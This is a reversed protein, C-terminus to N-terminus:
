KKAGVQFDEKLSKWGLILVLALLIMAIRVAVYNKIFEGHNAKNVWKLAPNSLENAFDRVRWEKVGSAEAIGGWFKSVASPKVRKWTEEIPKDLILARGFDGSFQSIVKIIDNPGMKYVGAKGPGGEDEESFSSSKRTAWNRIGITPDLSEAGGDRFFYFARQLFRQVVEQPPEGGGSQGEVASYLPDLKKYLGNWDKKEAIDKLDQRFSNWLKSIGDATDHCYTAARKVTDHGSSSLNVFRLALDGSTPSFGFEGRQYFDRFWELRTLDRRRREPLLRLEEELEAKKKPDSETRIKNPLDIEWNAEPPKEKLYITLQRYIAVARGIREQDVEGNHNLAENLIERIVTENLIYGRGVGDRDKNVESKIAGLDGFLNRDDNHTRSYTEKIEDMDRSVLTRLKAQALAIDNIANDFKKDAEDANGWHNAPNRAYDKLQSRLTIGNQTKRPKELFVFELPLREYILVTFVRHMWDNIADKKERKTWDKYKQEDTYIGIVKDVFRNRNNIMNQADRNDLQERTLVHENILFTRGLDTDLYREYIYGFLNKLAALKRADPSNAEEPRNPDPIKLFKGKDPIEGPIIFKKVYNELCDIGINELRKWADVLVRENEYKIKDGSTIHDRIWDETSLYLRWGSITDIGGANVSAMNGIDIFLKVTRYDEGFLHYLAATGKQFTEQYAKKLQRWDRFNYKKLIYNIPMYDVGKLALEPGLDRGVDDFPFRMGLVAPNFAALGIQGAVTPQGEALKPDAYSYWHMPKFYVGFIVLKANFIARDILWQEQGHYREKIYDEVFASMKSLHSFYASGNTPDQQWNNEAFLNENQSLMLSVAEQVIEGSRDAFIEDIMSSRLEGAYEEITGFTMKEKDIHASWILYELNFGYRLRKVESELNVRLFEILENPNEAYKSYPLIREITESLKTIPDYKERSEREPLTFRLGEIPHESIKTSLTVFMSEFTSMLSQVNTYITGKEREAQELPHDRLATLLPEYIKYMVSTARDKLDMTLETAIMKEQEEATAARFRRNNQLRQRIGVPNERSGDRLGICYREFSEVSRLCLFFEKDKRGLRELLGVTTYDMQQQDLDPARERGFRRQAEAESLGQNRAVVILSNRLKEFLIPNIVQFQRIQTFAQVLSDVNAIDGRIVKNLFDYLYPASHETVENPLIRYPGSGVQEIITRALGVVQPPRQAPTPIKDPTEAAFLIRVVETRVDIAKGRTSQRDQPDGEFPPIQQGAQAAVDVVVDILQKLENAQPEVRLFSAKIEDATQGQVQNRLAEFEQGGNPPREGLGPDIM